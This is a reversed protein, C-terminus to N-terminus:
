GPGQDILTAVRTVVEPITSAGTEVREKPCHTFSQFWTEYRRDLEILYDIEILREAPHNRARIRNMLVEVPAHLLILMWPRQLQDVVAVVRDLLKFEDQSIVGSNLWHRSFVEHAEYVSRDQLVVRSPCRSAQIAKELFQVSYGLQNKFAHM